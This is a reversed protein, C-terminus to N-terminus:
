LPSIFYQIVDYFYFYSYSILNGTYNKSDVADFIEFIQSGDDLLKKINQIDNNNAAFFINTDLSFCSVLPSKSNEEIESYSKM